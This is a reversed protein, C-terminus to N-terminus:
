EGVGMAHASEFGVPRCSIGAEAAMAQLKSSVFQTGQDHRLNDPAGLYVLVWMQMFTRWICETSIDNLFRAAQYHTARDVLHLVPRGEIYMIDVVVESNFILDERPVAVKVVYPKPALFQCEKCKSNIEQLMARTSSDVEEPKARKLFDHM